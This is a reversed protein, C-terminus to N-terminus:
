RDGAEGPEETGQRCRLDGAEEVGQGVSPIADHGPHRFAQRREVLEHLRVRQRAPDPFRDLLDVQRTKKGADARTPSVARSTMWPM